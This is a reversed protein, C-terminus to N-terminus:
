AQSPGEARVLAPKPHGSVTIPRALQLKPGLFISKKLRVPVGTDISRHIAQLVRIDALGDEGSPIPARNKQICDSFHLLLPAFQDVKGYRKRRVPMGDPGEEILIKEGVMEYAQELRLGANTGRVQFTSTAAAGFSCTFSALRDGPFRLVVQAMEEVERSRRDRGVTAEAYVSEPEANFVHRAANICYIGLDFLPGGGLEGSTRINGPKVQMSFDSSFFRIAGLKGGHILKLATLNAAEFHLRYATMLKLRKRRATDVMRRCERETVALPKDCLVHVGRRLARLTYDRHMTNPLGIYVADITGSRLLRDYDAYTALTEVGYREVLADLKRRDGSVLAALRSNRRAGKFAPLM